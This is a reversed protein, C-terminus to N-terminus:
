KTRKAREGGGNEGKEIGMREVLRVRGSSKMYNQGLLKKEKDTKM